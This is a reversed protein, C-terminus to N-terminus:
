RSQFIQGTPAGARPEFLVMNKPEIMRNGIAGLASTGVDGSDIFLSFLLMLNIMAPPVM